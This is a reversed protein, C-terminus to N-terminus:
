FSVHWFHIPSKSVQWNYDMTMCPLLRIMYWVVHDVWLIQGKCHEKSGCQCRFFPRHYNWIKSNHDKPRTKDIIFDGQIKIQLEGTCTYKPSRFLKMHWRSVAYQKGTQSVGRIANAPCAQIEKPTLFAWYEWMDVSILALHNINPIHWMMAYM